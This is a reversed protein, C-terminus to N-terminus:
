DILQLFDGKKCLANTVLSKVTFYVGFSNEKNRKAVIKLPLTSQRGGGFQDTTIVVCRGCKKEFILEVQENGFLNIKEELFEVEDLIINARFRNMEIQVGNENKIQQNLWDLSKKNAVLVQRSDM